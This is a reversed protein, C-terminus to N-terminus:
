VHQGSENTFRKGFHIAFQLATEKWRVSARKKTKSLGRLALYIMRAATENDPFPKQAAIVKTLQRHLDGLIRTGCIMRRIKAPLHFFPAAEDWHCKWSEVIMPYKQGLPSREFELIQQFASEPTESQYIKSFEGAVIRHDAPICFRTNHRQLHLICTQVQAEPFVPTVVELASQVGDLVVILIDEVGRSKLENMVRCWFLWSGGDDIWIGLAELRGDMAVGFALHVVRYELLDGSRVRALLSYFYVVPYMRKLCRGQWVDFPEIESELIRGIFDECVLSHHQDRLFKRIERVTLGRRVMSTIEWAFPIREEPASLSSDDRHSAGTAPGGNGNSAGPHKVEALIADEGSAIEAGYSDCIEVLLEHASRTYDAQM